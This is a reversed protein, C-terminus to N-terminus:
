RVVVPQLLIMNLAVAKLFTSKGSANSGVGSFIRRNLNEYAISTERNAM